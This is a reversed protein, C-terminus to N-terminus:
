AHGAGAGAGAGPVDGIGFYSYGVTRSYDDEEDVISPRKLIPPAAATALAGVIEDDGLGIGSSKFLREAAAKVARYGDCLAASDGSDMYQHLLDAYAENVNVYVWENGDYEEITWYREFLAPIERVSLSANEGSARKAGLREFLEVAVPDARIARFLQSFTNVERGTREKYAAAYEESFGFGGYCDNYLIKITTPAPSTM